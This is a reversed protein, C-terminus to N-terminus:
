DPTRVNEREAQSFLIYASGAQKPANPDKKAKKKKEKGPKTDEDGSSADSDEKAAFEFYSDSNKYIKMEEDYKGKNEKYM